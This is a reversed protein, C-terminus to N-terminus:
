YNKTKEQEKEPYKLHELVDQFVAVYIKIGLEDEWNDLDLDTADKYGKIKLKKLMKKILELGIVECNKNQILIGGM